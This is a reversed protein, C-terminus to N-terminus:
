SCKKAAIRALLTTKAIFPFQSTLLINLLSHTLSFSTSVLMLPLLTKFPWDLIKIYKRKNVNMERERRPNKLPSHIFSLLIDCHTIAFCFNANRSTHSRYGFSYIAWM